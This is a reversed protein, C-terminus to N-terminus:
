KKNDLQLYVEILNMLNKFDSYLLKIKDCISEKYLEKINKEDM